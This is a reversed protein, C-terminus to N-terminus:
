KVYAVLLMFKPFKENVINDNWPKIGWMKLKLNTKIKISERGGM